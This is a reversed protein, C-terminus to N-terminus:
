LKSSKTPINFIRKKKTM